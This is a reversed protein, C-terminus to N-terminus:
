EGQVGSDGEIKFNLYQRFINNEPKYEIFEEAESRSSFERHMVKEKVSYCLQNTVSGVAETDESYIDIVPDDGPCAIMEKISVKWTVTYEVDEAVLASCFLIACTLVLILKKM